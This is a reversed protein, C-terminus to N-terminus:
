PLIGLSFAAFVLVGILLLIIFFGNFGNSSSATQSVSRQQQLPSDVSTRSTSVAKKLSAQEARNKELLALPDNGSLLRRYFSDLWDLDDQTCMPMDWTGVEHSLQNRVHRLAILRTLDSSWKEIHSSEYASVSKMLDIYLSLGRDSGYMERCIKDLHKYEELFAANLSYM